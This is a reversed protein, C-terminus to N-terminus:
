LLVAALASRGEKMQAAPATWTSSKVDFINLSALQGGIGFGGAVLVNGNKLKVAVHHERPEPMPAVKTWAGTAPKAPDYLEVSSLAKGNEGEGGVVLVRGDDLLTATHYVRAEHMEGAPQFSKVMPLYLHTEKHVVKTMPKYMGGAILVKNNKLLTATHGWMLPQPGPFVEWHAPKKPLDPKPPEMDAVEADGGAEKTINPGDIVKLLDPVGADPLQGSDDDSCGSALAACLGVVMFM